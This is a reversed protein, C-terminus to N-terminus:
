IKFNQSVGWLDQKPSILIVLFNAKKELFTDQTENKQKNM